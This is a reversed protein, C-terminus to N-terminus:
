NGRGRLWVFECGCTVGYLQGDDLASWGPIGM